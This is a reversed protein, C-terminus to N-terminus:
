WGGFMELTFAPRFISIFVDEITKLSAIMELYKGTDDTGDRDVTNQYERNTLTDHRAGYTNVDDASPSRQVTINNPRALGTVPYDTYESTTTREGYASRDVREGTDSLSVKQGFNYVERNYREGHVKEFAEIYKRLRDAGITYLVQLRDILNNDLYMSAGWENEAIFWYEYERFAAEALRHMLPTNIEGYVLNRFINDRKFHDHEGNKRFMIDVYTVTRAQNTIYVHCQTDGVAGISTYLLANFVGYNGVLTEEEDAVVIYVPEGSINRFRMYNSGHAENTVIEANGSVTLNSGTGSAYLMGDSFTMAVYDTSNDYDFEVYTRYSGHNEDCWERLTKGKWETHYMGYGIM